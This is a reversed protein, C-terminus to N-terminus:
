STTPHVHGFWLFILGLQSWLRAELFTKRRRQARVKYGNVVSATWFLTPVCPLRKQFSSKSRSHPSLRADRTWVAPWQPLLLSSSARQVFLCERVFRLWRRDRASHLRCSSFYCSIREVIRRAKTRGLWLNWWKAAFVEVLLFRINLGENTQNEFM